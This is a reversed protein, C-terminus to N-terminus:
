LGALDSLSHDYPPCSMSRASDCPQRCPGLVHDLQPQWPANTVAAVTLRTTKTACHSGTEALPPSGKISVRPLTREVRSLCPMENPRCLVSSTNPLGFPPRACPAVKEPLGSQPQANIKIFRDINFTPNEVDTCVLSVPVADRCGLDVIEAQDAVDLSRPRSPQQLKPILLAENPPAASTRNPCSAASWSNM